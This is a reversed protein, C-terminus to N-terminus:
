LIRRAFGSGSHHANRQRLTTIKDAQYRPALSTSTRTIAQPARAGAGAKAAGAFAAGGVSRAAGGTRRRIRTSAAAGRHRRKGPM